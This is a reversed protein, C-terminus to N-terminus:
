YTTTTTTTQVHKHVPRHVTRTVHRTHKVTTKHYAASSQHVTGNTRAGTQVDAHAPPNANTNVNVTTTSPQVPRAPQSTTTVSRSTTAHPVAKVNEKLKHRKVKLRLSDTQAHVQTVLFMGLSLISLFITKKM